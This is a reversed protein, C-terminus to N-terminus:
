KDLGIDVAKAGHTIAGISIRDVGSQAIERLNDLTIGGSAELQPKNGKIKDRKEVAKRCLGAPMNDLLIIDIGPISLVLDLQSDVDDVEVSVFEVGEIAKSMRVFRTLEMAHNEGLSSFHNDKLMVASGLNYRHNFGGGCRVAYKELERWGPTTKRTDYIAAKTGRVVDVYRNTLSAVGCLRQLFNLLVREASLMPQLRGSIVGLVDGKKAKSGDYKYIEVELGVDYLKLIDRVIVMGCVVMDERATIDTKSIKDEPITIRSTPDGDGFDEAVALKILPLVKAIDLPRIDKSIM